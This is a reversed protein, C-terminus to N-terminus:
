IGSANARQAIRDRHNRHRRRRRNRVNRPVYLDAQFRAAHRPIRRPMISVRTAHGVHQPATGSHAAARRRMRGIFLMTSGAIYRRKIDQYDIDNPLAFIESESHPSDVSIRAFSLCMWPLASATLATVASTLIWIHGMQQPMLTSLVSPIACIAGILIPIYSYPRTKSAALSMLIGAAALGLSAGLLPLAHLPQKGALLNVLQYGGIATFISAILGIATSQVLLNKGCLAATLALLIASFGFALVSAWISAPFLAIWGASIVLMGLGIVLSTFTTHDSTWPRYVHQVSAGVAEVVDDYIIDTDSSAGPELTLTSHNPVHQERLTKAPSLPDGDSTLLRYGGYVISPDLIGLRRAIDPLLDAIIPGDNVRLAITRTKYSVTIQLTDTTNIPPSSPTNQRGHPLPPLSINM